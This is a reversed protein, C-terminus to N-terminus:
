AARRARLDDLAGDFWDLVHPRAYVPGLALEAILAISAVYTLDVRDAAPTGDIRRMVALGMDAATEPLPGHADHVGTFAAFVDRNREDTFWSPVLEMCHGILWPRAIMAGLVRAESEPPDATDITM